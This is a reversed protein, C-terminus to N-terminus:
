LKDKTRYFLIIIGNNVRLYSSGGESAYVHECSISKEPKVLVSHNRQEWFLDSKQGANYAINSPINYASDYVINCVIKCAFYMIYM